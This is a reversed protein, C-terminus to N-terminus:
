KSKPTSRSLGLAQKRDLRIKLQEPALYVQNPTLYHLSLHPRQQNYADIDKAIEKKAEEYTQFAFLNLWEDKLIGNIREAQANDYPSGDQTMSVQIHNDGLLAVYEKACYQSGRDSHHILPQTDNGRENLALRLARTGAIFTMSQALDWGIIKRSFADTVLFLYAFGQGVPIYTIDTVWIDNPRLAARRNVLDPHQRLWASSDTTRITRKKHPAVLLGAQRLIQFLADRGVRCARYRVDTQLIYHIKRAGLRPLDRRIEAVARLLQAM